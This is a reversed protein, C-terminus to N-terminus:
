ELGEAQRTEGNAIVYDLVVDRGSADNDFQVQIDGSAGGTYVYNQVSTTLTWNAVVSGGVLLNIHETGATGRARVTIDGSSQANVPVSLTAALAIVVV